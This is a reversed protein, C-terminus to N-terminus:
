KAQWAYRGNDFNSEDSFADGVIGTDLLEALMHPGGHKPAKKFYHNALQKNSGMPKQSVRMFCGYADQVDPAYAVVFTASDRVIKDMLANDFLGQHTSIDSLDSDRYLNDIVNDLADELTDFQENTYTRNMHPGFVIPIIDYTSADKCAAEFDEWYDDFDEPAFVEGSAKKYVAPGVAFYETYWPAGAIEKAHLVAVPDLAEKLTKDPEWMNKYLKFEEFKSNSSAETLKYPKFSEDFDQDWSAGDYTYRLQDRLEDFSMDIRVYLDKGDTIFDYILEDEYFGLFDQDRDYHDFYDYEKCSLPKGNDYHLTEMINKIQMHASPDGIKGDRLLTFGTTNIADRLAKRVWPSMKVDSDELIEVRFSSPTYDVDIDPDPELDPNPDINTDENYACFMYTAYEALENLDKLYLMDGNYPDNGVIAQGRDGRNALEVMDLKEALKVSHIRKHKLNPQADWM